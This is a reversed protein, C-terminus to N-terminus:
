LMLWVDLGEVSTGAKWGHACCQMLNHGETSAPGRGGSPCLCGGPYSPAQLKSGPVSSFKEQALEELQSLPECGYVCLWMLNASYHQHYFGLMRQHPDIGKARPTHPHRRHLLRVSSTVPQSYAAMAAHAEM